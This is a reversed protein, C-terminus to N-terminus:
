TGQLKNRIFRSFYLANTGTTVLDALPEALVVATVGWPLLVPLVYILPIMIIIKRYFAFFFAKAGEGLANYTQRFTSNAGLVFMGAVYVRLMRKGLDVLEQDTNFVRIFMEPWLMVATTMGMTFILAATISLRITEKM